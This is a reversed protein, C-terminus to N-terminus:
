AGFDGITIDSCRDKTAFKCLYCNERYNLGRMFMSYYISDDLYKRQILKDDNYASLYYENNERFTIATVNTNNLEDRLYKQSPVGHCILDVLYLNDYDKQLFM